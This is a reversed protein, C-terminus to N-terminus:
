SNVEVGDLEMRLEDIQKERHRIARWLMAEKPTRRFEVYGDICLYTLGHPEGHGEVEIKDGVEPLFKALDELYVLVGLDVSEPDDDSFWLLLANGRGEIEKIVGSDM